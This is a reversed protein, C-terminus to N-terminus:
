GEPREGAQQAVWREVRRATELVAGIWRERAGDLAGRRGRPGVLWRRLAVRESGQEESMLRDATAVCAAELDCGAFTRGPCHCAAVQCPGRVAGTHDEGFHSEQYALALVLATHGAGAEALAALRVCRALRAPRDPSPVPQWEHLLEGCVARSAGRARGDAPRTRVPELATGHRRHGDEPRHRADAECVLGCVLALTVLASAAALWYYASRTM